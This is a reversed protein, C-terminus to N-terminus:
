HDYGACMHLSWLYTFFGWLGCRGQVWLVGHLSTVGELGGEPKSDVHSCRLKSSEKGFHEPWLPTHTHTHTHTLTHTHAHAGMRTQSKQGWPSHGALSRQGHSKWTLVSSHTAM